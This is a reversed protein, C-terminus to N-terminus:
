MMCNYLEIKLCRPANSMFENYLENTILSLHYIRNYKYDIFPLLYKHIHKEDVFLRQSLIKCLKQLTCTPEIDYSDNKDNNNASGETISQLDRKFEDVDPYLEYLEDNNKYENEDIESMEGEKQDIGDSNKFQHHIKNLLIVKVHKPVNINDWDSKSFYLKINNINLLWLDEFTRQLIQIDNETSVSKNESKLESLIILINNQTPIPEAFETFRKCKRWIKIYESIQNQLIVPIKLENFLKDDVNFLDIARYHWLKCLQKTYILHNNNEIGINKCMREFVNHVPTDPLTMLPNLVDIWRNLDDVSEAIFARNPSEDCAILVFQPLTKHTSVIVDNYMTLNLIETSQMNSDYESHTKYSHLFVGKKLVMWRKRFKKLHKSEKKLYGQILIISEGENIHGDDCQGEEVESVISNGM